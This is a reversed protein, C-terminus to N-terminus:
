MDNGSREDLRHDLWNSINKQADPREMDEKKILLKDCRQREDCYEVVVYKKDTPSDYMNIEGANAYSMNFSIVAMGVIVLLFIAILDLVFNKM